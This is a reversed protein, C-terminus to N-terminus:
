RRGVAGLLDHPHLDAVGPLQERRHGARQLAPHQVHVHLLRCQLVGVEPQHFAMGLSRAKTPENRWCAKWKREAGLQSIGLMMAGNTIVMTTRSMYWSTVPETMRYATSPPPMIPIHPLVNYAEPYEMCDSLHHPVMSATSTTGEDSMHIMAPRVIQFARMPTTLPRSTSTMDTTANPTGMSMASGSINATDKRSVM